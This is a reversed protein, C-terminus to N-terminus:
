VTIPMLFLLLLILESARLGLHLLPTSPPTPQGRGLEQVRAFYAQAVRRGARQVDALRDVNLVLRGSGFSHALLQVLLIRPDALLSLLM